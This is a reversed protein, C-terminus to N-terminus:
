RDPRDDEQPAATPDHRVGKLGLNERIKAVLDDLQWKHVRAVLEPCDGENRPLYGYLMFRADPLKASIADIVRRVAGTPDSAQTCIVVVDFDIVEADDLAQELSNRCTVHAIGDLKTFLSTDFRPYEAQNPEIGLVYKTHDM